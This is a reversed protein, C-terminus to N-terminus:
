AVNELKLLKSVWTVAEKQLSDDIGKKALFEPLGDLIGVKIYDTNVEEKSTDYETMVVKQEKNAKIVEEYGGVLKYYADEKIESVKSVTKLPKFTLPILTPENSPKELDIELVGKPLCDNFKFQAPSGCYYGNAVNTKQFKHIDGVAWYTIEPISPIQMGKTIVFGEDTTVGSICEHFMVVRYKCHMVLPLKQLVVKKFDQSTYGQWPICIIGIDGIVHVDPHWTVVKIHSFPMCALEDIQTFTGSLHDHNGAIIVTPIKRKEIEGLWWHLLFSEGHTTTKSHTLDGAVLLPMGANYAVDIIQTLVQKHRELYGDLSRCSGIHIDGTQIFKSM